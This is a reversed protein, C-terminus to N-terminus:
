PKNKPKWTDAIILLYQIIRHDLSEKWNSKDSRRPSNGRDCLGSSCPRMVSPKRLFPIGKIEVSIRRESKHCWVVLGANSIGPGRMKWNWTTSAPHWSSYMSAKWASKLCRSHVQHIHIFVLSLQHLLEVILLTVVSTSHWDVIPKLSQSDVDILLTEFPNLQWCCVVLVLCAILLLLLWRGVVLLLLMM